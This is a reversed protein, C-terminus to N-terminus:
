GPKGHSGQDPKNDHDANGRDLDEAMKTHSAVIPSMEAAFAKLKADSGATAYGKMLIEAERHGAQQQDVYRPDFDDASASKLNDILGQRRSDLADPLSVKGAAGSAVIAKLKATSKAHAAIMKAAYARIAPSTSRKAAMESSETEYMDSRAANEVFGQASLAGATAATIPGVVASASDQAVATKDALAAKASDTTNQPNASSREATATSSKSCGAAALALAALTTAAALRNIRITM